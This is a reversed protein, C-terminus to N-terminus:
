VYGMKSLPIYRQCHLLIKNIDDYYKIEHRVENNMSFLLSLPKDKKRKVEVGSVESFKLVASNNEYHFKIGNDILELKANYEEKLNNKINRTARLYMGFGILLAYWLNVRSDSLTYIFILTIIALSGGWLAGTLMARKSILSDSPEFINEM